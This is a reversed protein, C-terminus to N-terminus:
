LINDMTVGSNDLIVGGCHDLITGSFEAMNYGMLM